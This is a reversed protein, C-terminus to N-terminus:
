LGEISKIRSQILPSPAWFTETVCIVRLHDWIARFIRFHVKFQDYSSLDSVHKYYRLPGQILITQVIQARQRALINGESAGSPRSFHM